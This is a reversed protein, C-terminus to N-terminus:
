VPTGSGIRAVAIATMYRNALKIPILRPGHAAPAKLSPSRGRTPASDRCSAISMRHGPNKQPAHCRQAAFLVTSASKPRAPREYTLSGAIDHFVAPQDDYHGSGSEGSARCLFSRGLLRAGSSGSFYTTARYRFTVVRLHDDDM